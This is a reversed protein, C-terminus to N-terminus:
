AVLELGIQHLRGRLNTLLHQSFSASTEEVRWHAQPAPVDPNRWNASRAILGAYESLANEIAAKRAPTAQDIRRKLYLVGFGLHRSEDRTVKKLIQKLLADSTTDLIAHFSDLALGEALVQMGVLKEEADPADLLKVLLEELYPNIRTPGGILNLYRGFVEMHRAEDIVQSSLYLKASMDPVLPILQGCIGLAAQEGFWFQSLLGRRYGLATERDLKPNWGVPKSWDIDTAANWQERKAMEYLRAEEADALAYTDLIYHNGM